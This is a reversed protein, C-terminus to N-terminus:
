RPGRPHFGEGSNDGVGMAYNSVFQDLQRSYDTNKDSTEGGGAVPIAGNADKASIKYDAGAKSSGDPHFRTLHGPDNKNMKLEGTRSDRYGGAVVFPHSKQDLLWLYKSPALVDKGTGMAVSRAFTSRDAGSNCVILLTGSRHQFIPNGKISAIVTNLPITQGTSRYAPNLAQGYNYDHDGGHAGYSFLDSFRHLDARQAWKYDPTNPDFNNSDILGLPDIRNVANNNCFRYINAADGKFGIPDPQLFVGM